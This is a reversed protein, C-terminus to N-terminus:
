SLLTQIGPVFDQKTSDQHWSRVELNTGAQNILEAYLWGQPPDIFIKM